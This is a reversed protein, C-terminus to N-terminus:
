NVNDMYMNLSVDSYIFLYIFFSFPLDLVDIPYVFPNHPTGAQVHSIM